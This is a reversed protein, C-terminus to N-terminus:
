DIYLTEVDFTITKNEIEEDNGYEIIICEDDVYVDDIYNYIDDFAMEHNYDSITIRHYRYYYDKIYEAIIENGNM